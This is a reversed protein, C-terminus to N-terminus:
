TKNQKKFGTRQINASLAASYLRKINSVQVVPYTLSSLLRNNVNRVYQSLLEMQM